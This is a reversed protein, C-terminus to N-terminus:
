IIKCSALLQIVYTSPIITTLGSSYYINRGQVSAITGDGFWSPSGLSSVCVGIVSADEVKFTPGGSNGPNIELDGIHVDLFEKKPYPLGPRQMYKTQLMCVAALTGANTILASKNPYPYGSIGISEGERPLVTPFKVVDCSLPLVKNGVKFGSQLEGSFPNKRLKLLCLDHLEDRAIIDVDSLAFNDRFTQTHQVRVGVLIDKREAEVDDFRKLGESIVHDATIVHADKTVFFGTGISDIILPKGIEKMSNESLGIARVMIQVVCPRIVEISDPLLM